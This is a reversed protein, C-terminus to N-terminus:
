GPKKVRIFYQLYIFNKMMGLTLADRLKNRKGYYKGEVHDLALGSSTMLDIAAHRPFWRLHTRDRIGADALDFRGKFVLPLVLSYHRMNPISAILVGGPNLMEHCRKVVTWPDSLHELVDLFLIADFTGQETAVQDLLAPQELNGAYSADVEPLSDAAVLDVVVARDAKGVTKLYAVSSGIGGGIDLVSSTGAPVLDLVETRVRDHYGQRVDKDGSM